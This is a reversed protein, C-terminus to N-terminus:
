TTRELLEAAVHRVAPNQAGAIVKLLFGRPHVERLARKALVEALTPIRPIGTDRPDDDLADQWLATRAAVDVLTPREIVKLGNPIGM